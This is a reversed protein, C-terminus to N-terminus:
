VQCGLFINTYRFGEISANLFVASVDLLPCRVRWLHVLINDVLSSNDAKKCASSFPGCPHFFSMLLILFLGINLPLCGRSDNM